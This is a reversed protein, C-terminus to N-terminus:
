ITVADIAQALDARAADDAAAFVQLDAENLTKRGEAEAADAAKVLGAALARAQEPTM